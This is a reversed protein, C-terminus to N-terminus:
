DNTWEEMERALREAAEAFPDDDEDPRARRALTAIDQLLFTTCLIGSAVLAIWAIGNILTAIM